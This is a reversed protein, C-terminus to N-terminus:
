IFNKYKAIGYYIEEITFPEKKGQHGRTQYQIFRYMSLTNGGILKGKDLINVKKGYKLISGHDGRGRQRNYKKYTITVGPIHSLIGEALKLNVEPPNALFQKVREKVTESLALPQNPINEEEESVLADVYIEEYPIHVSHADTINHANIQYNEATCNALRKIFLKDEYQQALNMSQLKNYKVQLLKKSINIKNRLKYIELILDGCGYDIDSFEARKPKFQDETSELLFLIDEQTTDMEFAFSAITDAYEKLQLYDLTLQNSHVYLSLSTSPIEYSPEQYQSIDVTDINLRSSINM